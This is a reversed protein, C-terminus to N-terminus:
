RRPLETDDSTTSAPHINVDTWTAIL